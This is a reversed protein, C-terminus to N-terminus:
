DEDCSSCKGTVSLQYSSCQPCLGADRQKTSTDGGRLSVDRHEPHSVLWGAGQTTSKRVEDAGVGIRRAEEETFGITCGWFIRLEGTGDRRAAAIYRYSAPVFRYGSVGLEATFREVFARNEPPFQAKSWASTFSDDTTEMAALSLRKPADRGRPNVKRATSLEPTPAVRFATLFRGSSIPVM